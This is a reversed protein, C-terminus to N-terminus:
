AFGIKARNVWEAAIGCAVGGLASVAVVWLAPLAPLLALGAAVRLLTLTVSVTIRPLTFWEQIALFAAIYIGLIALFFQWSLLAALLLALVTLVPILQAPRQIAVQGNAIAGRQKAPIKRLDAINLLDGYLYITAAGACYSVFAIVGSGWNAAFDGSLVMPLFILLNVTFRKPRLALFNDVFRRPEADFVREVNPLNRTAVRVAPVPHAIIAKRAHPFIALDELDDGAYDFPGGGAIERMRNLKNHGALDTVGDSGVANEFFGLHDAVARAYTEDAATALIIRRGGKHEARLFNVFETRYPLHEAEMPVRESVKRKLYARGRLLWLPLRLAYILAKRVLRFSGEVSTDTRVLTGDLDVFLPVRDPAQDPSDSQSMASSM